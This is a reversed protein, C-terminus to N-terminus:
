VIVNGNKIHVNLNGKKNLFEHKRAAVGTRNEKTGTTSYVKFIRTYYESCQGNVIFDMSIFRVEHENTQIILVLLM